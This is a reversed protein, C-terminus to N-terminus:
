SVGDFLFNQVEFTIQTYKPAPLARILEVPKKAALAAVQAIYAPNFAPVNGVVKNELMVFRQADELQNGTLSELDFDLSEYEQGEFVFPKEFKIEM